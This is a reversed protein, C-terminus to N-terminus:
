LLFEHLQNDLVCIYQAGSFKFYNECLICNHRARSWKSGALALYFRTVTRHESWGISGVTWDLRTRIKTSFQAGVPWASSSVTAENPSSFARCSVVLLLVSASTWM